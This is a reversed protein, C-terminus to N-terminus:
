ETSEGAVWLVTKKDYSSIVKTWDDFDDHRSLINRPPNAGSSWYTNGISYVPKTWRTPQYRYNDEFTDGDLGLHAAVAYGTKTLKTM